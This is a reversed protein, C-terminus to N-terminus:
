VATWGTPQTTGQYFNGCEPALPSGESDGKIEATFPNGYTSSRYVGFYTYGGDTYYGFTPTNTAAVITDVTLAALAGSSIRADLLYMGGRVGQVRGPGNVLIQIHTAGSANKFRAFVTYSASSAIYPLYGKKKKEQEVYALLADIEAASYSLNAM